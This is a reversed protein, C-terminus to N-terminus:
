SYMYIYVCQQTKSLRCSCCRRCCPRCCCCCSYEYSSWSWITITISSESPGLGQGWKFQNVYTAIVEFNIFCMLFMSILFHLKFGLVPSGSIKTSALKIKQVHIHICGALRKLFKWNQFHGLFNRFFHNLFTPDLPDLIDFKKNKSRFDTCIQTCTWASQMAYRQAYKSWM